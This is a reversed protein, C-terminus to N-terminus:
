FETLWIFVKLVALFRHRNDYPKENKMCYIDVDESLMISRARSLIVLHVSVVSCTALSQPVMCSTHPRVFILCM